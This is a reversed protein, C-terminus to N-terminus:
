LLMQHTQSSPITAIVSRPWTAIIGTGRFQDADTWTMVYTKNTTAATEIGSYGALTASSPAEIYRQTLPTTISAVSAPNSFGQGFGAIVVGNEPCNIRSKISM